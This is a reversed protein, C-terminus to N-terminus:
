LLVLYGADKKSYYGNGYTSADVTEVQSALGTLGLVLVM